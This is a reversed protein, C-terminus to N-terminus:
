DSLWPRRSALSCRRAPIAAEGVSLYEIQSTTPCLAVSRMASWLKSPERALFAVCKHRSIDGTRQAILCGGDNSPDALSIRSGIPKQRVDDQLRLNAALGVPCYASLFFGSSASRSDHTEVLFDSTNFDCQRCFLSCVRSALQTTRSPLANAWRAFNSKRLHHVFLSLIKQDKGAHKGFEQRCNSHLARVSRGLCASRRPRTRLSRARDARWPRAM